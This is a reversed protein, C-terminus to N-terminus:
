SFLKGRSGIGDRASVAYRAKGSTATDVRVTLGVNRLDSMRASLNKIGFRARADAATITRGTGRLYNELFATQNSRITTFSM